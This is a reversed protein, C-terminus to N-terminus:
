RQDGPQDDAGLAFVVARDIQDDDVPPDVGAVARGIQGFGDGHLAVLDKADAGVALDLPQAARLRHDISAFPPATSGPKLSACACKM